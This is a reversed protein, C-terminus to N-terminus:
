FGTDAFEQGQQVISTTKVFLIAITSISIFTERTFVIEQTKKCLAYMKEVKRCSLGPLTVCYNIRGYYLGSKRRSEWHVKGVVNTGRCTDSNTELPDSVLYLSM